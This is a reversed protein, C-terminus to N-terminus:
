WLWFTPTQAADFTTKEKEQLQRVRSLEEKLARTQRRLEEREHKQIRRYVRRRAAETAQRIKRKNGIEDNESTSSTLSEIVADDFAEEYFVVPKWRKNSVVDHLLSWDYQAM